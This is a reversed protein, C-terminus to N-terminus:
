NGASAEARKECGPAVPEIRVPATGDSVFGLDQAGKKSVDLVRGKKKPGRDNVVLTTEKGNELNTVQIPTGLPLSPHAATRANPDFADGSATKEGKHADGYWSAKGHQVTEGACEQTDAQPVTSAPVSQNAVPEQQPACAALLGLVIAASVRAEKIM